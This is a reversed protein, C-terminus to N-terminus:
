LIRSNESRFGHSKEGKSCFGRTDDLAKLFIKKEELLISFIAKCNVNLVTKIGCEKLETREQLSM